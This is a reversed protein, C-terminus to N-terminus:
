KRRVPVLNKRGRGRDRSKPLFGALVPRPLAAVLPEVRDALEAPRPRAAPDPDLCSLVHGALVPPVSRPLPEPRDRRPPRGTLAAYMTAGLGWVDAPPGVPTEPTPDCQEPAMYADTGIAQRLTAAEGVSRAISLDILRPPAGMVVNSPKVDLHVVDVAQLYHLVSCLELCLPLAQELPLPGYRRVLTSLRPGDLHELVLHPRPGDPVTAFARVLSPHALRTAMEAERALAELTRPDDVQDPRVVKAVVASHLTEDFALYAEFRSGGGLRRVATRGPVIEDGPEFDWSDTRNGHTM